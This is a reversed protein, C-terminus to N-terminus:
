STYIITYKMPILSSTGHWVCNDGCPVEAGSFAQQMLLKTQKTLDAHYMGVCDKNLAAQHLMHYVKSASNKTQTFILTKAINEASGSKLCKALGDM